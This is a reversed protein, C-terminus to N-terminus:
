GMGSKMEISAKLKCENPYKGSRTNVMLGVYSKLIAVIIQHKNTLLLTSDYQQLINNQSVYLLTIM